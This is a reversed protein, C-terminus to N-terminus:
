RGVVADSDLDEATIVPNLPTKWLGARVDADEMLEAIEASCGAVDGGPRQTWEPGEV